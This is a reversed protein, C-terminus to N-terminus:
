QKNRQTVFVYVLAAGVGLVVVGGCILLIEILGLSALM